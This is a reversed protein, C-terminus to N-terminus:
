PLLCFLISWFIQKPSDRGGEAGSTTSPLSLCIVMLHFAGISSPPGGIVPVCIFIYIPVCTCVSLCVPILFLCIVFPFSRNIITTTRDCTCLYISLYIPLLSHYVTLCVSILLFVVFLLILYNAAMPSVQCGRSLEINHVLTVMPSLYNAACFPLWPLLLYYTSCIGLNGYQPSPLQSCLIAAM